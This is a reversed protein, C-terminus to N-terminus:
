RSAPKYRGARRGPALRTTGFTSTLVTRPASNRFWPRATPSTSMSFIRIMPTGPVTTVGLGAITVPKGQLEDMLWQGASTLAAREEAKAAAPIVQAAVAAKFKALTAVAAPKQGAAAQDSAQKLPSSLIVNAGERPPPPSPVSAIKVTEQSAGTGVILTQGARFGLPAALRLGTAGAEAATALTTSLAKSTHQTLVTDLDAFSTTVAFTTTQQIANGAVDHLVLTQSQMVRGDVIVTYAAVPALSDIMVAISRYTTFVANQAPVEHTKKLAARLM